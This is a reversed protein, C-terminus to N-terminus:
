HDPDKILEFFSGPMFPVAENLPVPAKSMRRYDDLGPIPLVPGPAKSMRHYDEQSIAEAGKTLNKFAEILSSDGAIDANLCEVDCHKDGNKLEVRWGGGDLANDIKQSRWNWTDLRDVVSWFEVWQEPSPVVMRWLADEYRSSSNSKIFVREQANHVGLSFGDALSYRGYDVYNQPLTMIRLRKERDIEFRAVLSQVEATRLDRSAGEILLGVSGAFEEAWWVSPRKKLVAEVVIYPARTSAAVRVQPPPAYGSLKNPLDDGSILQHYRRGSLRQNTLEIEAACGTRLAGLWAASPKANVPVEVTVM